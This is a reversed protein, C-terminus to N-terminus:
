QRWTDGYDQGSSGRRQDQRQQEQRYEEERAKRREEEITEPLPGNRRTDYNHSRYTEEHRELSNCYGNDCDKAAQAEGTSVLTSATSLISLLALRILISM